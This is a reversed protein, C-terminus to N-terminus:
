VISGGIDCKKDCEHIKVASVTVISDIDIAKVTGIDGYIKKCVM